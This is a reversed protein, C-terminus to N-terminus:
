ESTTRRDRRRAFPGRATGECRNLRAVRSEAPRDRAGADCVGMRELTDILRELRSAFADFAEVFEHVGLNATAVRGILMVAATDEDLGLSGGGTESLDLNVALMRKWLEAPAHAPFEGVMGYLVLADPRDRISIMLQTDLLLFCQGHEDFDLPVGAAESLGNLWETHTNM